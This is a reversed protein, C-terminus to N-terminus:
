NVVILKRGSSATSPAQLTKPCLPPVIELMQPM